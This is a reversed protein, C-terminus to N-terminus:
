NKDRRKPCRKGASQICTRTILPRVGHSTALQIFAQWDIGQTAIEKVRVRTRPTSCTRACCLMLEVEPISSGSMGMKAHWGRTKKCLASQKPVLARDLVDALVVTFILTLLNTDVLLARDSYFRYIKMPGRLQDASTVLELTLPWAGWGNQFKATDPKEFHFIRGPRGTLPTDGGVPLEDEDVEVNSATSIM